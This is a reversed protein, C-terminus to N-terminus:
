KLGHRREGGSGTRCGTLSGEHHTSSPQHGAGRRGCDAAPYWKRTPLVPPWRTRMSRFIQPVRVIDAAIPLCRPPDVQVPSTTAGMREHAQKIKQSLGLWTEFDPPLNHPDNVAARIREYEDRNLTAIGYRAQAM